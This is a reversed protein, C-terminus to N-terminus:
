LTPITSCIGNTISLGFAFKRLRADLQILFPSALAVQRTLYSQFDFAGAGFHLVTEFPNLGRALPPFEGCLVKPRLLFTKM